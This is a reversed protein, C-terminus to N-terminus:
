ALAHSVSGADGDEDRQSEGSLVLVSRPPVRVAEGAVVEPALSGHPSHTSLLMTWRQSYTAPPLTFYATGEGANLYVLLDDEGIDGGSWVGDVAPHGNLYWAFARGESLGGLPTLLADPVDFADPEGNVHDIFRRQLVKRSRRVRILEQTFRLLEQDPQSLSWDVWSTENDQCWANNNGGQTRGLEDGHLLMPVGQSLMLTALLNRQQRARLEEVQPEDTPGEVGCNWSRNFIEGDENGDGNAENHKENYSVLDRLTFGDHSTVFNIGVEPQSPSDSHDWSSGALRAGLEDAAVREGRWLDRVIDRYAGNRTAWRAPLRAPEQRDGYTAVAGILKVNRLVPDQRLVEYFAGTAPPLNLRFGDVHMEVVWYRLCDLAFQLVRPHPLRLMSDSHTLQDDDPVYYARNDLGRYSLTPGYLTGSEATRDLVLDLVVELGAEHLYRVMEKFELVQQGRTGSASYRGNPAFLGTPSYGWYDSLEGPTMGSFQTVPMLQVTTVGLNRLHDVVVPHALGAFTGRLDEEVEPHRMTLGKVHAEYIVTEATPRRPPRDDAWDFYPNIVVSKPALPGSDAESPQEPQDLISADWYAGGDIARAYPDLLLKQPNFLRGRPPDWPGDARFGYRQGPQVEPFYGHWVSGDVEGLSFRVEQDNRDFLCLWLSTAEESFV